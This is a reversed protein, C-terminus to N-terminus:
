VAPCAILKLLKDAVLRLGETHFHDPNVRLVGTLATGAATMGFFSISM